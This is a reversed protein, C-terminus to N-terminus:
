GLLHEVLEGQLYTLWDYIAYAALNPDDDDIRRQDETIGLRTGLVLRTDNLVGLWAAVDDPTLAIEMWEGAAVAGAFSATVLELADLRQRLLDPQILAEYEAEAEEETPDLYARPFLRAAAADSSPADFVARLESPLGRLLAMEEPALSVVLTDDPGRKFRRWRPSM